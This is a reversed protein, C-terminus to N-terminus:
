LPVGRRGLVQAIREDIFSVSRESSRQWSGDGAAGGPGQNEVSM